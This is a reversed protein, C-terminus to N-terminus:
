GYGKRQNRRYRWKAIHVDVMMQETHGSLGGFLYVKCHRAHTFAYFGLLSMIVILISELLLGFTLIFLSIVVDFL